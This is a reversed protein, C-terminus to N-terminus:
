IFNHVRPRKSLPKDLVEKMVYFERLKNPNKVDEFISFAAKDPEEIIAAEDLSKYIVNDSETLQKVLENSRFEEQKFAYDVAKQESLTNPRNPKTAVPHSPQVTKDASRRTEAPAPQPPAEGTFIMELERMAREWEEREPDQHHPAGAHQDPVFSEDYGDQPLVPENKKLFRQILPWLLFLLALIEFLPIKM